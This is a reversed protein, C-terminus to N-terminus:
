NVGYKRLDAKTDEIDKKVLAKLDRCKQDLNNEKTNLQKVRVATCMEEIRDSQNYMESLAFKLFSIVLQKTSEDLDKLSQDLKQQEPSPKPIVPPDVCGLMGCLALIVIFKM